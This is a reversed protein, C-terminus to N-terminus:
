PSTTTTSTTTTTTSIATTSTTTTPLPTGVFQNPDGPQGTGPTRFGPDTQYHQVQRTIIDRPHNTEPTPVRFPSGQDGDPTQQPQLPTDSPM